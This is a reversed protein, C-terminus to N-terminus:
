LKRRSSAKVEEALLPLLQWYWDPYIRINM